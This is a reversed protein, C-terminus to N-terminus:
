GEVWAIDTQLNVLGYFASAGGSTRTVVIPPLSELRDHLIGPDPSHGTLGGSQPVLTYEGPHLDIRIALACVVRDGPALEPLAVGRNATGVAFVLIGRRDYFHIGVNLDPCAERAEVLYWFRLIGGTEVWSREAGDPGTVTFGAIETSRTGSPAHMGEPLRQILRHRVAPSIDLAGARDGTRPLGRGPEPATAAFAQGSLAFYDHVVTV